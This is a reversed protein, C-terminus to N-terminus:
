EWVLTIRNDDAPSITGERQLKQTMLDTWSGEVPEAEGTIYGDFVTGGWFAVTYLANPDIATGDALTVSLMREGQPNWPAVKCSLGSFAYVCDGTQDDAGMPDNLADLLQQGTMSAKVLTTDNGLSRPMLVAVHDPTLAGAFIRMLNGRYAINDAILGVDAGAAERYLDAMYFSTELITFDKEATAVTEPAAAEASVTQESPSVNMAAICEEATKEGAYMLKADNTLQFRITPNEGSFNLLQFEHGEDITPQLASLVSNTPPNVNKVNSIQLSDGIFARQGEKSSFYALYRDVADQVAKTREAKPVGVVANYYKCVYGLEGASSPFPMLSFAFADSAVDTARFNIMAIKGAKFENMRTTASYSFHEERLIGHNILTQVADFMPTLHDATGITGNVAADYWIRNDVGAFLEEYFFGQMVINFEDSYKANPNWPQVEGNTDATIQDCLAVFEDFTAPEQWGYREFLTKNYLMCAVESPCPLCYLNGDIAVNGLAESQYNEAFPGTSLNVFNEMMLEDSILAGQWFMVDPALGNLVWDKAPKVTANGGTIDLCVVQIDPNLREFEKSFADIYLNGTRSVVLTTKEPDLKQYTMIENAARGVAAPKEGCGCLLAALLLASLLISCAKKM